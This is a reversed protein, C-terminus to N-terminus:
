EDISNYVARSAAHHWKLLTGCVSNLEEIPIGIDNVIVDVWDSEFLPILSVADAALSLRDSVDTLVFERQKM